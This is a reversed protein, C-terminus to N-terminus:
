LSCLKSHTRYIKKPVKEKPAMFDPKGRYPHMKTLVCYSRQLCSMVFYVPNHQWHMIVLHYNDHNCPLQNQELISCSPPLGIVWDYKQLMNIRCNGNMCDALCRARQCLKRDSTYAKRSCDQYLGNHINIVNDCM